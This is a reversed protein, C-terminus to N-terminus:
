QKERQRVWWDIREVKCDTHNELFTLWNMYNEQEFGGGWLSGLSSM